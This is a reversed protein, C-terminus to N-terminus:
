AWHRTAIKELRDIRAQLDTVKSDLTNVKSDLTDVKTNLTTVDSQLTNVKSDLTNVKSDLVDVKSNLTDVNSQLTNVKSDLTDVKTNLTDVDSELTSVRDEIDKDVVVLKKSDVEEVINRAGTSANYTGIWVVIRYEGTTTPATLTANWLDTGFQVAEVPAGVFTGDARQIDFYVKNGTPVQAAPIRYAEVFTKGASVKLVM